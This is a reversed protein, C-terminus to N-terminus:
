RANPKSAPIHRPAKETSSGTNRELSINVKTDSNSLSRSTSLRPREIAHCFRELNGYIFELSDSIIHALQRPIVAVVIPLVAERTLSLRPRIWRRYATLSYGASRLSLLLRINKWPKASPVAIKTSASLALSDVVSPWKELFIEPSLSSWRENNGFRYILLADAIVLATGPLREQFLVGTHIFHSGYYRERNRSLWLSKRLIINGANWLTYDMELFFRDIDQSEYERDSTFRIWRRRVIKSLRVDRLEMNVIVLTRDSRLSNLVRSVAGPKLLDDDGMIWCFEGRALMVARDFNRDVGVNSAQKFYRLQHFQRIFRSVVQETGDTSANDSVVIECEGTAQAILAELTAGIFKARNFTPICFSLRIPTSHPQSDM